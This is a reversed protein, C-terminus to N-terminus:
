GKQLRKGLRQELRERAWSKPPEKGFKKLALTMIKKILPKLLSIVKKLISTSALTAAVSVTATAGAAVLIEPKPMPIPLGLVDITMVGELEAEPLSDDEDELLSPLEIPTTQIPPLELTPPTPPPMAEEGQAKDAPEKKEEQDKKEEQPNEEEPNEEREQEALRNLYDQISGPNVKQPLFIPDFKLLEVGPYELFPIPVNLNNPLALSPIDPFNEM